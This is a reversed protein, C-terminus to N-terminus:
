NCINNWIATCLDNTKSTDDWDIKNVSNKKTNGGSTFTILAPDDRVLDIMRGIYNNTGVAAAFATMAIGNNLEALSVADWPFIYSAKFNACALFFIAAPGGQLGLQYVINPLIRKMLFANTKFTHFQTVQCLAAFQYTPAAFGCKLLLQRLDAATFGNKYLSDMGAVFNKHDNNVFIPASAVITRPVFPTPPVFTTGSPAPAPSPVSVPAPAPGPAPALAPAPAPAPAPATAVVPARRSATSKRALPM